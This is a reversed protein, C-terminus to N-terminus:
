DEKLSYEFAKKALLRTTDLLSLDSKDESLVIPLETCALIAVDCNQNRARKMVGYLRELGRETVNGPVIEQYIIDSVTKQDVEPLTYAEIGKDKLPEIYLGGKMTFGVGLIAAKRYGHEMCEEAAVEVISLVPIPSKQRVLKIAYHVSNGPIIAFEAGSAHLKEISELIMGAVANWKGREQAQLIHHFSRQHISIEPHKFDPFKKAAERCITQYCLAAGEATIGVIGIHKM